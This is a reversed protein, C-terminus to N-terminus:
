VKVIRDNKDKIVGVVMTKDLVTSHCDLLCAAADHHEGRRKVVSGRDLALLRRELHRGLAAKPFSTALGSHGFHPRCRGPLLAGWEPWGPPRNSKRFVSPGSQYSRGESAMTM